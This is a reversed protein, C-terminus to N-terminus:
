TLTVGLHLLERLSGILGDPELTALPVGQSYGQTTLVVKCGAARSALADGRSDGVYLLEHPRVGACEAALLLLHPSPKREAANRPTLCFRFWAALGARELLGSAFTAEKNTVVGLIHGRRALAALTDTVGAYVTSHEFLRAGYSKRFVGLAEALRGRAADADFSAALSRQVLMEVGQGIFELIREFALPEGGSRELMANVACALDPASDVLTGDLDFVVARVTEILTM